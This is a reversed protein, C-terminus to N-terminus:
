TAIVAKFGDQCGPSLARSFRFGFLAAVPLLLLLLLLLALVSGLALVLLLLLLL